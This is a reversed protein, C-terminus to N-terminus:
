FVIRKTLINFHYPFFFREEEFHYDCISGNKEMRQEKGSRLLSSSVSLTVLFSAYNCTVFCISLIINSEM